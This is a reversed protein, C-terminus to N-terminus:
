SPATPDLNTKAASRVATLAIHDTLDLRLPTLSVYGHDVAWLDTGDHHHQIPDVTFRLHGIPDKDRVVRGDYRDVAQTTWRIARPQRPFNVNVLAPCSEDNLLLQLM